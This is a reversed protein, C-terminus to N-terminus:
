GGLTLDEATQGQCLCRTQLGSKNQLKAFAESTHNKFTKTGSEDSSLLINLHVSVLHALTVM